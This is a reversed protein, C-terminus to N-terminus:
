QPSLRHLLQQILLDQKDVREKLEKIAQIVPAILCGYNLSYSDNKYSVAEPFVENVEQAILGIHKKDTDTRTYSYGTLQTIRNLSDLLPIIDQKFRKDSLATIDGSAYISGIVHLTYGPNTIGIGVSGTNFFFSSGLFQMATAANSTRNYSQIYAIDNYGLELSSGSTPWVTGTSRILGNVDLRTQPAATGIGVNGSTDVRVSEAWSTVGSRRGIVFNAPGNGTPGAVAGFYVNSSGNSAPTAGIDILTATTTATYTNYWSALTGAVYYTNKGSSSLAYTEGIGLMVFPIATTSTSHLHLLSSPSTTGIGVGLSTISMMLTSGLAGSSQGSTWLYFDIANGAGAGSYHRSAIWHAYNTSSGGYSLILQPYASTGTATYGSGNRIQLGSNFSSTGGIDLAYVPNTIGIGVNGGRPNLSLNHWIVGSKISAISCCQNTYDADLLMQMQNTGHTGQSSMIVMSHQNAAETSLSNGDQYVHLKQLPNNTGIGVNGAVITNGSSYLAPSRLISQYVGGGNVTALAYQGNGSMTIYSMSAYSGSVVTWTQGYNTSYYITSTYNPTVFAYTLQYQGSASCTIAQYNANTLVSSLTWTQGYNSSYYIGGAYTTPVAGFTASMYQGTASVCVSYWSQSAGVSTWSVGYNTSLYLFGASGNTNACAIQYQGSSSCSIGEYGSSISTQTWTQGFNSSYYIYSGAGNMAISMYQGTYSICGPMWTGTINGATISVINWTVGYNSSIYVRGGPSNVLVLQYQGSGSMYVKGFNLVPISAQTWTQGYNLSYWVAGAGSAINLTQYQGSYSIACGYWVSSTTLSLQTWNLGFTTYDLVSTASLAISGDQFQQGISRTIGNVDLAYQPITSGIGVNGSSLLSLTGNLYMNTSNIVTATGQTAVYLSNYEFASGFSVIQLGAYYPNGTGTKSYGDITPLLACSWFSAGPLGAQGNGTIGLANASGTNNWSFTTICVTVGSLQLVNYYSLPGAAITYNANPGFVSIGNTFLIFGGIDTLSGASRIIIRFYSYIASAVNLTYSGFGTQGDESDLVTWSVGDVSGVLTWAFPYRAATYGVRGALQYSTIYVATTLQLQIWEGYITQSSVASGLSLGTQIIQNDSGYGLVNYLTASVASAIPAVYLGHTYSNLTSGSANLIISNKSQNSTGAQNGIAIANFGQNQVGTNNGIAVSFGSSNNNLQYITTGNTVTINFGDSSIACGTMAVSGVTIGIFTLGYNNSYYVNNITGSTVIVMYQGTTSIAAGSINANIGTLTPQSYAATTFGVLYNPILYATTGWIGLCYQGSGSLAVITGTIGLFTTQTWTVGYNTSYVPANNSTQSVAVMYQGTASVAMSLWTSATSVTTVQLWTSGYNASVYLSGGTVSALMYQGTNSVAVNNYNVPYTIVSNYIKFDDIYGNLAGNANDYCGLNFATITYAGGSNTGQGILVNNIYLSCVGSARYIATVNYWTNTIIAGSSTNINIGSSSYFQLSGNSGVQLIVNNPSTIFLTNTALISSRINFWFSVTYNTAGSWAGRIYNTAVGGSTNVLNVANSGIIGTVLTPSGTVTLTTGGIMGNVPVTEFPLYIAPTNLNTNTFSAGANNSIYVYDGSAALAVIQGDGSVAGSNYITQTAIPLGNAGSLTSWSQGLTSTYYLSSVTSLQTVVLQTQANASMSVVKGTSITNNTSIWNTATSFNGQALTTTKNTSQGIYVTNSATNLTSYNIAIANFTSVNRTALINSM